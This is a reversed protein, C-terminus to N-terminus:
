MVLGEFAKYAKVSNTKYPNNYHELSKLKEIYKKLEILHNNFRKFTYKEFISNSIIQSNEPKHSFLNFGKGSETIAFNSYLLRDHFVINEISKIINFVFLKIEFSALQSNIYKLKQNIGAEDKKEINTIIFIEYKKSKHLNEKFLPILNKKIKEDDKLIYPDSLIVFSTNSKLYNFCKWDIPINEEDSLDVKFRTKIIFEKLEKQYNDYSFCLVGKELLLPFWERTKEAFVITQAKPTFEPVFLLNFDVDLKFSLNIDSLKFLLENEAIYNESTNLYWNLNHYESFISFIINQIETAKEPYFEIQFNEVFGKEIYLEM